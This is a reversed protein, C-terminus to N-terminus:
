EKTVAEDLNLILQCLQTMSALEVKALSNGQQSEGVLSLKTAAESDAAFQQKLTELRRKLIAMEEESPFRSTVLRFAQAIQTESESFQTLTNSAMVRAAEVYTPDNLTSLAHLPTNTRVQKVSCTQRAANDFFMTPGVIRRWFVYLSRRYLSEGHDQEYKIKGFTAEEWIGAPQYPKTSPGGVKSSLLGSSSLAIDRLMWAPLRFRSGRGLLRNEPDIDLLEATVVSSQRYTASLVITRYLAKVDWGSQMFEVALWDLLEPHSPKEGQVGFDEITKVLGTGFISQWLRNVTVRATLPNSPDVLWHALGLRDVPRAPDISYPGVLKDPLSGNVKVDTPKDYAGKNLVFTDRRKALEDMIMVKTVNKQANDLKRVADLSKKLLKAYAADKGDGEFYALAELLQDANRKSPETKAIYSPLNGPLNIADSEVLKAAKPRPFKTLEFAEVEKAVVVVRESAEAVRQTEQESVIDITPPAQGGRGSGNESMQNFTDYLGFYDRQSFPDYKHDHCRCCTFTSGLWITATTEVRDFVNEVRTEEAIRGGEGNHMNNRHFGSALKQQRTADPLLDGALQEVTFQDYPMNANIAAVVWDRWPWMTREPDGQFGNTDAYRAADLWDWSMREGFRPSSLLREVIKEFALESHDNLFDDVEDLTPPLGTLDLTVRRILVERSAGKSPVIGEEELRALVFFDIPNVPWSTRQVTPLPVMRPLQYSWHKEWHAGTDIWKRLLAVQEATLQRKSEPPPMRISPDTAIIRRILESNEADGPLVVAAENPRDILGKRDDLRLEGQRSKEDPGHCQFCNDALLPLVDRGFDLNPESAMLSSGLSAWLTLMVFLRNASILSTM